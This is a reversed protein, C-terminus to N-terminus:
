RTYIHDHTELVGGQEVYKVLAKLHHTKLRHHRKGEIDQWCYQGQHRCPAGPCRMVRYVERWVSHQGSAQEADIRADRDALM